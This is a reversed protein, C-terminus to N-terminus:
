VGCCKGGEVALVVREEFHSQSTMDIHIIQHLSGLDITRGEDIPDRKQQRSRCLAVFVALVNFVSPIKM